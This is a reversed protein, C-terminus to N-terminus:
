KNEKEMLAFEGISGNECAAGSRPKAILELNSLIGPLTGVL